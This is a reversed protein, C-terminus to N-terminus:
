DPLFAPQTGLVTGIYEAAELPMVDGQNTTLVLRGGQQELRKLHWAGDIEVLVIRGARPGPTRDIVCHAGHVIRPALQNGEAVVMFFRHKESYRFPTTAVWPLEYMVAWREPQASGPGIVPLMLAPTASNPFRVNPRPHGIRDYLEYPDDLELVDTLRDVIRPRPKNRGTLWHNVTQRVVGLKEALEHPELGVFGLRARLWRPFVDDENYVILAMPPLEGEDRHMALVGPPWEAQIM